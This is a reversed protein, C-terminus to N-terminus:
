SQNRLGEVMDENWVTPFKKIKEQEKPSIDPTGHQSPPCEHPVCKNNSRPVRPKAPTAKVIVSPAPAPAIINVVPAPVVVPQVNVVIPQV